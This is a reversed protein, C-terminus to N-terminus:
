PLAQRTVEARIQGPRKQGQACAMEIQSGFLGAFVARGTLRLSQLKQGNAAGGRATLNKALLEDLTVAHAGGTVVLSALLVLRMTGGFPAAAHVLRSTGGLLRDQAPSSIM